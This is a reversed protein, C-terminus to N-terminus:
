VVDMQYKPFAIHGPVDRIATDLAMKGPNLIGNPDLLRKIRRMIELSEGLELEAFPAKVIGVGHEGTISGGVGLVLNVIEREAKKLARWQHEDNVDIFIAPHIIGVGAHALIISTIKHRKFIRHMEEIVEAMRSLPVCPDAIAMGVERYGPRERTMAIDIDLRPRWLRRIGEEDYAVQVEKGGNKLCVDAVTKVQEDLVGKSHGDLDVIVMAEAEPFGLNEVRNVTELATRDVFEVASPNVGCRATEMSARLAERVSNFFSAVSAKYPPLPIVNLTVETIIGLTGESGIFLQTLNYGCNSRLVRSGVRIVKGTPLVVELGLIWNKIPGYKLGHHGHSNSAVMGGITSVDHSGVDHPFTLSFKKLERNLKDVTIGPEVIAILNEPQIDKIKDMKSMDLVVSNERPLSSGTFSAGSGRPTVPVKERNAWILIKSVQETTKPFVVARPKFFYPTLDRSYCLLDVDDLLINERGVIEILPQINTGLDGIRSRRRSSKLIEEEVASRSLLELHQM